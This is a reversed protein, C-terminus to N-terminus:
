DHADAKAVRVDTAKRMSSGIIGIIIEKQL